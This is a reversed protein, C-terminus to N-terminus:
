VAVSLEARWWQLAARLADDIPYIPAWGTDARLRTADGRVAPQDSPRMRTPDIVVEIPNEAFSVLREVIESIAIDVGSCVNYTAGARGLVAACRYARVVDRVDTFDRTASLNGVMLQGSGNREVEAIQKAFASIAFAPSQGAGIHNFPRMVMVPIGRGDFAQNAAIEAAAKSAGYPSVPRMPHSEAIPLEDPTVRGYVEGSSVIVTRAPIQLKRVAEVVNLTGMVNVQFTSGPEEWSRGVDAQGALHYVADPAVEGIADTLARADTIDVFPAFVEDGAANLHEILYRGVFGGGGTLFARM